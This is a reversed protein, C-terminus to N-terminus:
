RTARLPPLVGVVGETAPTRQPLADPRAVPLGSATVMVFAGSGGLSRAGLQDPKGVVGSALTRVQRELVCLEDVEVGLASRRLVLLRRHPPELPIQRFGPGPELVERLDSRIQRPPVVVLLRLERIAM